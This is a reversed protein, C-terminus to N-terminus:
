TVLLNNDDKLSVNHSYAIFECKVQGYIKVHDYFIKDSQLVAM